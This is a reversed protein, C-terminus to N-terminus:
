IPIRSSLDLRMKGYVSPLTEACICILLRDHFAPIVRQIVFVRMFAGITKLVAYSAMPITLFLIM